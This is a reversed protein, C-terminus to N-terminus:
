MWNSDGSEIEYLWKNVYGKIVTYNGLQFSLNGGATHLTLYGIDASKHWFLQSVSVAQIKEPVIIQDTVDWAGSTKIIFRDNIYLRYRFFGVTLLLLRLAAYVPFIWYFGILFEEPLFILLLGLPVVISLFIAFVLKRYNPKLMVGKEPITHFLLELLHNTEKKDCGPIEIANNHKEGQGNTAQKIRLELIDLKKQFYNQTVFTEQVKEPKVITSKTNILGFSLLLSGQQKSVTYNFYRIVVRLLNIVLFLILIAAVLIAGVSLTFDQKVYGTVDHHRYGTGDMVRMANEYITLFFALIVGFTRLYNSTLGIKILSWLSIKLIPTETQVEKTITEDSTQESSTVSTKRINQMLHEKVGLAVQHSVAKISAEKDVSGATDVDVAYVSILRQLLTQKINVQQIKDYQIVIRTKNLIGETLVFEKNIDDLQFTFNRFRLWAILAIVVLVAPLSIWFVLATMSGAKILMIIIFPAMAKGYEVLVNAFMVIVGISSQRQPKSFDPQM